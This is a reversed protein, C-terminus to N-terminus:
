VHSLHLFAVTSYVLMSISDLIADQARRQVQYRIRVTLASNVITLTASHFLIKHVNSNKLVKLLSSDQGQLRATRKGPKAGSGEQALKALTALLIDVQEVNKV